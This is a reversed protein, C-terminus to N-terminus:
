KSLYKTIIDKILKPDTIVMKAGILLHTASFGLIGGILQIQNIDELGLAVLITQSFLLGTLFNVVIFKWKPLPLKNSLWLILVIGFINAICFQVLLPLPVYKSLLTLAGSAVVSAIERLKDM